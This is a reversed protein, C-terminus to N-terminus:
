QQPRWRGWDRCGCPALRSWGFCHLGPRQRRFLIPRGMTAGIALAIFSLHLGVVVRKLAAGAVDSGRKLRRSTDDEPTGAGGATGTGTTLAAAGPRRV